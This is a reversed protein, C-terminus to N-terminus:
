SRVEGEAALEVAQRELAELKQVFGYAEGQIRLASTKLQSIERQVKALIEQRTSM